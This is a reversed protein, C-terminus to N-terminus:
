DVVWGKAKLYEDLEPESIRNPFVSARSKIYKVKDEITMPPYISDLFDVMKDLRFKEGTAITVPRGEL